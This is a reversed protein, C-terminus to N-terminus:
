LKELMERLTTEGSFGVEHAVVSGDRGILVFTPYTAVQYAGLMASDGSSVTPIGAAAEESMDVGLILLGRDKYEEYIKKLVPAPGHPM